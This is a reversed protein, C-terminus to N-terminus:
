RHNAVDRDLGVSAGGWTKSELVYIGGRGLALHDVNASGSLDLDHAIQWGTRRLPRLARTTAREDAGGAAWNAM